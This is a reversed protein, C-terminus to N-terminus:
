PATVPLKSLWFEGSSKQGHVKLKYRGEIVETNVGNFTRPFKGKVSITIREFEIWGKGKLSAGGKKVTGICIADNGPNILSSPVVAVDFYLWIEFRKGRQIPVHAALTSSTTSSRFNFYRGTWDGLVNVPAAPSKRRQVEMAMAAAVSQNAGDTASAAASLLCRPELSEVFPM